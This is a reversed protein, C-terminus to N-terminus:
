PRAFDTTLMAAGLLTESGDLISHALRVRQRSGPLLFRQLCEEVAPMLADWNRTVGGGLVVMQPDLLSITNCIGMGLANFGREIISAAAADGEQYAQILLRADIQTPDASGLRYLPSGTDANQYAELAYKKLAWGSVLSEICGTKGCACPPGGPDVTIHGFEGAMGQGRYLKGSLVLGAGVGTSIQVYLMDRTDRGAGFAWEGLAAANGDNEMFAPIGFHDTIRDPLPFNNWNKVHMSKVVTHRDDSIIGGFSIGIGQIDGRPIACTQLITNGAKIMAQLCADAGEEAPAPLRILNSISGSSIDVLGAALKTGGFDFALVYTPQTIM